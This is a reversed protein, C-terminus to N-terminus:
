LWRPWNLSHKGDSLYRFIHAPQSANQRFTEGSILRRKGSSYRTPSACSVHYAIIVQMSIRMGSPLRMFARGSSGKTPKIRSRHLGVSACSAVV